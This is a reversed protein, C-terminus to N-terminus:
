REAQGVAAPTVYRAFPILLLATLGACLAFVAPIGAIEAVAGAVAAGLAMAGFSFLRFVGGVRGLMADPVVQQRISTVVIGWMTSGIGGIVAAIGILIPNATLAPMAVMALTGIIDAGIAWHRGLRKLIPQTVFIGLVGGIGISTLMIGYGFETLGGPGPAVVYLVMLAMWASWGFNMVAVILVLTRLLGHAGVFRLGSKIETWMPQQSVIKPRFTGAILFIAAAAVAYLVSSTGIALALSLAALAGGIPPGIFENTLTTIGVLRTNAKELNGTSEVIAPLISSGATDALTELIGLLLAVLYLLPLTVVNLAMALALGGLAVVRLGNAAIMMRRRDFRDALVGAVLAFVLWPLRIAFAVGAVLAPSSTLHAAYLPLALKFIGDALNSTATSVWLAQFNSLRPRSKTIPLAFDDGTALDSM